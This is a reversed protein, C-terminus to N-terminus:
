PALDFSRSTEAVASGNRMLRVTGSYRGSPWRSEKLRKGAYAIWTAKNRDLPQSASKAAFGGPGEVDLAIVDGAKLNILRAFFIFQASTAAPDTAGGDIESRRLDPLSGSFGAAIIEGNLYRYNARFAADWLGAASVPDAHCVGASGQGSFPDIPAGDKRVTVHLHAFEALGSYGIAGVVSGKEVRDGVAIKLSGSRMHCYQTEWGAGHDIVLGNGCERNAVLSRSQPDALRDPMGDRVAKVTGAASAKVNVGAAAERTSLLRFDTGDHGNYSAGGCAFDQVAPSPDIDVYSQIFCSLGLDCAVPMGLQPPEAMAAAPSVCGGIVVLWNLSRRPM